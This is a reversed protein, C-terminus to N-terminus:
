EYRVLSARINSTVAGGSTNVVSLTTAGNTILEGKIWGGRGQITDWGTEASMRQNANPNGSAWETSWYLDSTGAQSTADVRTPSSGTLYHRNTRVYFGLDSGAWEAWGWYNTTVDNGTGGAYYDYYGGIISDFGNSCVVNANADTSNGVNTISFRYRGAETILIADASTINNNTGATIVEPTFLTGGGGSGGATWSLSSDDGVVLSYSGAESMPPLNPLAATPTVAVWDMNSGEVTTYIYLQSPGEEGSGDTDYWLDNESPSAPATASATVGGGEDATAVLDFLISGGTNSVHVARSETNPPLDTTAVGGLEAPTVNKIDDLTNRFSM